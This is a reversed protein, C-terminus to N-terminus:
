ESVRVTVDGGCAWWSGDPREGGGIEVQDGERAVVQGDEDLLELGDGDRRASWGHPWWAMQVESDTDTEVAIGWTDHAVLTGVLLSAPCPPPTGGPEVLPESTPIPVLEHTPPTPGPTADAAPGAAGCAALVLALALLLPMLAPSPLM